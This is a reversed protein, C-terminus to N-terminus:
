QLTAIQEFVVTRDRGENKARYLASDATRIVDEVTEGTDIVSIGISVTIPIEQLQNDKQEFKFPEDAIKQRLREAIVFADHSETNPLIVAFEEGGFRAPVDISRVGDRIRGAVYQLVKDGIPHGYNDNVSKFHDIDLMLLAFPLKYRRFREVEDSFCRNIERRNYLSTLEDITALETLKHELRRNTACNQRVMFFVLVLLALVLVFISGMSIIINRMSNGSMAIHSRLVENEEDTIAGLLQRITDFEQEEKGTVLAQNATRSGENKRLEINKRIRDLENQIFPEVTALREIHRPNNATRTNLRALTERTKEKAFLFHEFSDALDTHRYDRQDSVADDLTSLTTEVDALIERTNSIQQGIGVLDNLARFAIVGGAILLLVLAIIAVLLKKEISNM